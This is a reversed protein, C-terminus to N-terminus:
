SGFKLFKIAEFHIVDGGVRKTAYLGVYPKNTLNDRTVRIGIRDVVQYGRRFNGFAVALADTTTFPDM